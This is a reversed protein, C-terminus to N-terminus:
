GPRQGHLYFGEAKLLDVMEYITPRLDRLVSRTGPRDQSFYDCVTRLREVRPFGSTQLASAFREPAAGYVRFVKYPGVFVESGDEHSGFGFSVEGDNVLLEEFRSFLADAQTWTMGDKFYVDVHLGQSGSQNLAEEVSQHVPVEIVFFGPETVLAGLTRFMSAIKSATVNVSLVPKKGRQSTACAYSETVGSSEPVRVGRVVEFKPKMHTDPLSPRREGNRNAAYRARKLQPPEHDYRDGVAAFAGTLRGSSTARRSAGSAAGIPRLGVLRRFVLASSESARSM